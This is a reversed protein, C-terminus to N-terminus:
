DAKADINTSLVQFCEVISVEQRQGDRSGM